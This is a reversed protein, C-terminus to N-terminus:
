FSTSEESHDVCLPISIIKSQITLEPMYYNLSKKGSPVMYKILKLSSRNKNHAGPVNISRLTWITTGASNHMSTGSDSKSPLVLNNGKHKQWRHPLPLGSEAVM